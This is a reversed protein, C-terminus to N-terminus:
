IESDASFNTGKYSFELCNHLDRIIWCIYYCALLHLEKLVRVLSLRSMEGGDYCFSVAPLAYTKDAVDKRDRTVGNVSAKVFKSRSLVKFLTSDTLRTTAPLTREGLVGLIDFDKVFYYREVNRPQRLFGVRFPKSQSRRLYLLCERVLIMYLYTEIGDPLNDLGLPKGLALGYLAQGHSVALQAVFLELNNIPLSPETLLVADGDEANVGLLFLKKPRKSAVVSRCICSLGDLDVVVVIGSEGVPLHHGVANIIHSLISTIHGKPYAMVRRLKGTLTESLVPLLSDPMYVWTCLANKDKTVSPTRVICSAPLELPIEHFQGFPNSLVYSNGMIRRVAGLPVGNFVPEEGLNGSHPVPRHKVSDFLCAFQSGFRSGLRSESYESRDVSTDILCLFLAVWEKFTLTVTMDNLVVDQGLPVIKDFAFSYM